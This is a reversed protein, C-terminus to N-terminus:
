TGGHEAGTRASSVEGRDERMWRAEAPGAAFGEGRQMRSRRAPGTVEWYVDMLRDTVADWTFASVDAAPQDASAAAERVAAAVAEPDSANTARVQAPFLRALDLFAPIGSSVVQRGAAVAELVTMGFAEASSLALVVSARRYWDVLEGDTARGAFIVRGALGLDAALGTLAAREPGDGIVALRYSEELLALARIAADVRKYGQLRGVSLLLLPDRNGSEERRAKLLDPSFGNPIV